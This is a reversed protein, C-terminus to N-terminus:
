CIRTTLAAAAKRQEKLQRSIIQSRDYTSFCPPIVNTPAIVITSRSAESRWSAGRFRSENSGASRTRSESVKFQGAVIELQRRGTATISNRRRNLPLQYSKVSDYSHENNRRTRRTEVCMAARAFTSAAYDNTIRSQLRSGKIRQCMQVLAM